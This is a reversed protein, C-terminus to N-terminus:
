VEQSTMLPVIGLPNVSLLLVPTIEPVGVSTFTVPVFRVNRTRSALLQSAVRTNARWAQETMVILGVGIGAGSIPISYECFRVTLPELAAGNVKTALPSGAQSLKFLLVPTSLPVVVVRVGTDKVSVTVSALPQGPERLTVSLGTHGEIM